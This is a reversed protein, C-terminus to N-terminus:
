GCGCSLCNCGGCGLCSQPAAQVADRYASLAEAPAARGLAFLGAALALALLCLPLTIKM